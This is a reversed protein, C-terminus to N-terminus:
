SCTPATVFAAGPNGAVGAWTVPDICAGANAVHGATSLAHRQAASAGSPQGNNFFGSREDLYEVRWEDVGLGAPKVGLDSFITDATAADVLVPAASAIGWRIAPATKDVGFYQSLGSSSTNELRDVGTAYV